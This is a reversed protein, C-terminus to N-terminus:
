NGDETPEGPGADTPIDGGSPFRERLSESREPPLDLTRTPFPMIIGERAYRLHLSKILHHRLWQSSEYDRARVAVMLNISSEGFSNFRTRPKVTKIAEPFQSQVERAVELTIREVQELDSDFHVGLEVRADVGPDPLSFNTILTETLKANPVMVWSNGSTQIRTTRWGMWTVTGETGGELRIFHGPEIVKEALMQLGAFLNALSDKLALAVALSGIGLSALIPTISIGISDLFIMLGMAIILGRVIGQVLGRTGQLVAHRESLRDLIGRCAFDVFLVLGLAMAAAMLIDFARDWERSLPLIREFVLFGSAVIPLLLPGSLARILVDDWTWATREAVRQLWKLVYRKVGMFLVVWLIFVVPGLLWPSNLYEGLPSDALYSPM